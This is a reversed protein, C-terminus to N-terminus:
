RGTDLIQGGTKIVKELLRVAAGVKGRPSKANDYQENFPTPWHAEPEGSFLNSAREHDLGLLRQAKAMIAYVDPDPVKTSLLYAWGAICAATGCQAFTHKPDKGVHEGPVGRRITTEQFYRRPEALIHKIVKRILRVNLKKM